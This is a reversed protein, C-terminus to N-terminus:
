NVYFHREGLAMAYMFKCVISSGLVMKYTFKSVIPSGLGIEYTVKSPWVNESRFIGRDYPASDAAHRQANYQRPRAAASYISPRKAAECTYRTRPM